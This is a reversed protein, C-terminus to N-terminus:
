SGNLKMLWLFSALNWFRLGFVRSIAYMQFVRLYSFFTHCNTWGLRVTMCILSLHIVTQGGLGWQWIFLLCILSLHIPPCDTWGLRVTMCNQRPIKLHRGNRTRKAWTVAVQSYGWQTMTKRTIPEISSKRTAKRRYKVPLGLATRWKSLQMIWM